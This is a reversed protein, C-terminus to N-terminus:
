LNPEKVAWAARSDLQKEERGAAHRLQLEPSQTVLHEDHAQPSHSQRGQLNGAHVPLAGALWVIPLHHVM